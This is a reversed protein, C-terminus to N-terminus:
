AMKEALISINESPFLLGNEGDIIIEPIGGVDSGIIAKGCSMAEVLSRSIGETRSALVFFRCQEYESIIEDFEMGPLMIIQPNGAALQIYSTRDDCHGIIKLKVNPYRSSIKNFARILIDVGKIEYPAGVLLIYNSHYGVHKAFSHIAVFDFFNEVPISRSFDFVKEYEKRIEKSVFKVGDASRFSIKMCARKVFARIKEKQIEMGRFHNTNVEIILKAGTLKKCIVGILGTILPDYAIIYDFPKYKIAQQLCFFVYLFQRKIVNFYYPRSILSFDGVQQKKSDYSLHLMVGLFNQSFKEYKYSFNEDEAKWILYNIFLIRKKM